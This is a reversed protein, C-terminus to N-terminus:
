SGTQARVWNDNLVSVSVTEGPRLCRHRMMKHNDVVEIQQGNSFKLINHCHNIGQADPACNSDTMVTASAGSSVGRVHGKIVNLVYQGGAGNDAWHTFGAGAPIGEDAATASCGALVILTVLVAPLTWQWRTLRANNFNRYM